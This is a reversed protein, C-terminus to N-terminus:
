VKGRAPIGKRRNRGIRSHELVFRAGPHRDCIGAFVVASMLEAMLGMPFNAVTM